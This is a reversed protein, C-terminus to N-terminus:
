NLKYNIYVIKEASDLMIKKDQGVIMGIHSVLLPIKAMTKVARNTLVVKHEPLLTLDLDRKKSADLIQEPAFKNRYLQFDASPDFVVVPWRDVLTAYAFVRDIAEEASTTGLEYSKHAIMLTNSAGVEEELNLLINSNIEYGLVPALDALWVQRQAAFGGQTEVFSVLSGPANEITHSGDEQQHLCINYGKEECELIDKMYGVVQDCVKFENQKAFEVVWNVNFETLGIRWQKAERNFSVRGQSEKSNARIQEILKQDYPFRLVIYEGEIDVSKSRDIQRLPIRYRETGPEFVEVGLATLQKRYKQVIKVALEAQKDTLPKGGITHDTVSDLFSVDYRALNIIPDMPPGAFWSTPKIVGSTIDRKGAIVELYDEVTSFKKMSSNYCV